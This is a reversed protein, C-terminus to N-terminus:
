CVALMVGTILTGAAFVIILRAIKGHTKRERIGTFYFNALVLLILFPVAFVLHFVFLRSFAVGPFIGARVSLEIALVAILVSFLAGRAAGVHEHFFKEKRKIQRALELGSKVALIFNALAVFVLFAIFFEM